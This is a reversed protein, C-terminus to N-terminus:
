ALVCEKSSEPPCSMRSLPTSNLAVQSAREIIIKATRQMNALTARRTEREMADWWYRINAVLQESTDLGFAHLVIFASGEAELEKNAQPTLDMQPNRLLRYHFHHGLEHVLTWLMGSPTRPQVWMFRKELVYRGYIDKYRGGTTDVTIREAEAVQLLVSWLEDGTLVPVAIDPHTSVDHEQGHLPDTQSIDFVSTARYDEEDDPSREEQEDDDLLSVGDDTLFLEAEDDDDEEDEDEDGEDDDDNDDSFLEDDENDSCLEYDDWAPVLIVIGKEDKRVCRGLEMWRDAEDVRTSDPRQALVLLANTASYTYFRAQFALYGDWGTETQLKEMEVSLTELAETVEDNARNFAAFESDSWEQVKTLDIEMDGFGLRGNRASPQEGIGSRRYIEALEGPTMFVFSDSAKDSEQNVM